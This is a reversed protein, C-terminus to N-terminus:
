GEDDEEDERQRALKKAFKRQEKLESVLDKMTKMLENNSMMTRNGIESSIRLQDTLEAMLQALDTQQRVPPGVLPQRVVDYTKKPAERLAAKIMPEINKILEPTILGELYKAFSDPTFNM